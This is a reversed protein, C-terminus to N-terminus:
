RCGCGRQLAGQLISQISGCRCVSQTGLWGCGGIRQGRLGLLVYMFFFHVVAAIYSFTPFILVAQGRCFWVFRAPQLFRGQEAVHVARGFPKGREALPCIGGAAEGDRGEWLPHIVREVFCRLGWCALYWSTLLGLM